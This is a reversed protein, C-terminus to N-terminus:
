NNPEIAYECQCLNDCKVAPGIKPCEPPDWKNPPDCQEPEKVEEDGCCECTKGKGPLCIGETCSRDICDVIDSGIEADECEAEKYECMCADTCEAYQGPQINKCGPPNIEKPPDCQEGGVVKNDGCIPECKCNELNCEFGNNCDLDDMCEDGKNIDCTTCECKNLNCHEGGKIDCDSSEDCEHDPNNDPDCSTCKCQANWGRNDCEEGQNCDADLNCDPHQPNKINCMMFVDPEGEQCNEDCYNNLYPGLGSPPDCTEVEDIIMNGCCTCLGTPQGTAIDIEEICEGAEGGAEKPNCDLVKCDYKDTTGENCPPYCMCPLKGEPTPDDMYCRLSESVKPVGFEDIDDCDLCFVENGVPYNNTTEECMEYNNDNAYGTFGNKCVVNQSKISGQYFVGPDTIEFINKTYPCSQPKELNNGWDGQRQLNGIKNSHGIARFHAYEHAVTHAMKDVIESEPKSHHTQYIYLLNLVMWGCVEPDECPLSIGYDLDVGAGHNPDGPSIFDTLILTFRKDDFKLNNDDMVTTKMFDYLLDFFLQQQEKNILGIYKKGSHQPYEVVGFPHAKGAHKYWVPINGTQPPNFKVYLTKIAFMSGLEIECYGNKKNNDSLIKFAKSLVQKDKDYNQMYRDFKDGNNVYGPANIYPVILYDVGEEKCKSSGTITSGGTSSSSARDIIEEIPTDGISFDESPNGAGDELYCGVNEQKDFIFKIQSGSGVTEYTPYVTEVNGEEDVSSCFVDTKVNFEDSAEVEIKDGLPNIAVEPAGRDSHFTKTDSFFSNGNKYVIEMQLTYQGELEPHGFLIFVCRSNGYRSIFPDDILHEENKQGRFFLKVYDVGEADSLATDCVYLTQIVDSSPKKYGDEIQLEWNPQPPLTAQSRELSRPLWFQGIIGQVQYGSLLILLITIVGLIILTYAVSEQNRKTKM